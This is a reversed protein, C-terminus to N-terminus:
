HANKRRKARRYAGLLTIYQVAFCLLIGLEGLLAGGKKVHDLLPHFLFVNMWWGGAVRAPMGAARLFNPAAAFLALGYSLLFWRLFLPAARENRGIARLIFPLFVATGVALGLAFHLSTHAM